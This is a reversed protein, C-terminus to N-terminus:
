RYVKHKWSYGCKDCLKTVLYIDVKEKSYGINTRSYREIPNISDMRMVQERASPIGDDYQAINKKKLFIEKEIKIETSKCKPCKEKNFGNLWEQIKKM